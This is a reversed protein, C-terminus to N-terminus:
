QTKFNKELFSRLEIYGLNQAIIRGMDDLLFNTPFATINLRAAEKGDKDWYQPWNVKYKEIAQLWESRYRTKDTSIGIIELGKNKFDNYVTILGPFQRICPGCNSYWFDIFTYKNLVAKISPMLQNASDVCTISPFLKGPGTLSKFSAIKEGLVKGTHTDRLEKSFSNYITDFIPQYGFPTLEVLKWLALYSHPNSRTYALLTSDNRAYTKKLEIMYSLHASDPIHNNYLKTLAEWKTEFKRNIANTSRSFPLFVSRYEDMVTNRVEPVKRTSDINVTVLQRGAEVIFMKSQYIRSDTMIIGLPYPATGTIEFKRNRIEGGKYIFDKPYFSSDALLRFSVKGTDANIVGYLQYHGPKHNQGLSNLLISTFLLTLFFLRDM